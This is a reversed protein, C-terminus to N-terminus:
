TLLRLDCLDWSASGLYFRRCDPEPSQARLVRSHQKLLYCMPSHQSVYAAYMYSTITILYILDTKCKSVDRGAM